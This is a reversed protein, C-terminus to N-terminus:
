VVVDDDSPTKECDVDGSNSRANDGQLIAEDGLPALVEGEVESTINHM